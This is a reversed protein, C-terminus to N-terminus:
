SVKGLPAGLFGIRKLITDVHGQVRIDSHGDWWAHDTLEGGRPLSVEGVAEVRYVRHRNFSGNHDFLYEAARPRLRTEEFLERAAASLSPERKKIGGGPLSYSRRGKDRVLLVHGNRIVVATARQRM